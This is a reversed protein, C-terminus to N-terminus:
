YGEKGAPLREAKEGDKGLKDELQELRLMLAPRQGADSLKILQSLSKKQGQRDALASYIDLARELKDRRKTDGSLPLSGQLLLAHATLRPSGINRCYKLAHAAQGWAEEYQKDTKALLALGMHAEAKMKQLQRAKGKKLTVAAYGQQALTNQELRQALRAAQLQIDAPWHGPEFLNAHSDLLKFSAPLMGARQQMLALALRARMQMINNNHRGALEIVRKYAQEATHHNKMASRIIALNYWSQTILRIDDALQSATLARAFSREASQWREHQMASIGNRIHNAAQQLYPNEPEETKHTGGSGCAALM